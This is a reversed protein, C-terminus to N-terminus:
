PADPAALDLRRGERRSRDFAGVLRCAALADDLRPALSQEGRLLRAFHDNLSEGLTPELPLREEHPGDPGTWQIRDPLELWAVGREAYVQIGPPPLFRTAQDWSPRHFRGFTVQAVAGGPFDLTFGEFDAEGPSNADADAGPLVTAGFGQIGAPEAQFVFRCWDLLNGGPDVSMPLPALQTNPGPSGYRDFGFLRVHGLVLRPPGLVTAMLERLRLTAPYFRRALEPVVLVERTRALRALRELGEPDSAVPLGCYVPKGAECAVQAAHLGFWQPGLVYVADVDARTALTQLGLAADCGLAQAELAARRAVQDFVAVVEFRDALRALAPKHRADWLRGLGVIGLRLRRTRDV